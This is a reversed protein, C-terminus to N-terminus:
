IWTFPSELTFNCYRRILSSNSNEQCAASQNIGKRECCESLRVCHQGCRKAHIHTATKKKRERKREDNFMAKSTARSKNCIVKWLQLPLATVHSFFVGKRVTRFVTQLFHVAFCTRTTKRKGAYSQSVLQFQIAQRQKVFKSAFSSIKIFRGVCNSQKPQSKNLM